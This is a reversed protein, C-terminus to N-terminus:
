VVGPTKPTNQNNIIKPPIKPYPQKVPHAVAAVPKSELAEEPKSWHATLWAATPNGSIAVEIAWLNLLMKRFDRCAASAILECSVFKEVKGYTQVFYEQIKNNDIIFGNPDLHKDSTELKVRYSLINNGPVGCQTTASVTWNVIFQGQREMKLKM